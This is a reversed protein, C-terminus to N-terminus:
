PGTDRRRGPSATAREDLVAGYLERLRHAWGTVEFRELFRRRGAEGMESRLRRDGLLRTVADAIAAPDTPVVLGADPGVIDPIGGVHTAVVPVGVALAQMLTTPLADARSTHVVLDAAALLAPVDDRYGLFRVSERLHQDARVRDELSQRLEGDGALFVLPRLGAPIRAVADLLLDHGKEPRMLAASVIVPRGDDVGLEARIGARAVSDAVGPDAVGNPVVVLGRDSGTLDLYWERQASSLAITRAATRRRVALGAARKYRAVAGAPADEVIHLTSVVPLRLLAGAAAGVLDAHKLHTHLLAPRFARLAALTGPVARPDWRPLDLEVVPVGLARLAEAHVPRETPSLAIVLLDLGAAPAAGALEVLVSEAGGPGLSHIVHAVRLRDPSPRGDPAARESRRSAV